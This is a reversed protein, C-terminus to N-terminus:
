VLPLSSGRGLSRMKRAMKWRISASVVVIFVAMAGVATRSSAMLIPTAYRAFLIACGGTAIAGVVAGVVIALRRGNHEGQLSLEVM